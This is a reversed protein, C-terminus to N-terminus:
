RARLRLRSLTGDAAIRAVRGTARTVEGAETVYLTGDATRTLGYPKDLGSAVTTLAGALTVRLVSGTDFEVVLLSGSPEAAIAMPSKVASTIVTPAGGVPDVRLLRNNGTDSVALTGDPLQALGHAFDVQAPLFRPPGGAAPIIGVSAENAFAIAGDALVSFPSVSVDSIREPRRDAAIRYLGGSGSVLLAGAADFGLGWPSLIGSALVTFTERVLDIQLIRNRAGREAVLLSGDPSLIPQAPNDIPYPPPNTVNVTGLRFRRGALTATVNWRGVEGLRLRVRYREPRLRSARAQVITTGQRAAVVPAAKGTARLTASWVQGLAISRPAAVVSVSPAPAAAAHSSLVGIIVAAAALARTGSFAM